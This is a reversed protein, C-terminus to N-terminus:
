GHGHHDEMEIHKWGSLLNIDVRSLAGLRAVILGYSFCVPQLWSFTRIVMLQVIIWAVLIAGAVLLATPAKPSHRWVLATATTMPLAVCVLLATGAVATSGWPFRDTVERGFDVGGGIVGVAGAYAWIAMLGTLVGGLEEWRRRTRGRLAATM